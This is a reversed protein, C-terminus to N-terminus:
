SRTLIVISAARRRRSRSTMMLHVLNHLEVFLDESIPLTILRAAVSTVLAVVRVVLLQLKRGHNLRRMISRIAGVAHRTSAGVVLSARARLGVLVALHSAGAHHLAVVMLVHERQRWLGVRSTASGILRAGTQRVLHEGSGAVRDCRLCRCVGLHVLTLGDVFAKHVCASRAVSVAVVRADTAHHVLTLGSLVRSSSSATRRLAVVHALADISVLHESAERVDLQLRRQVLVCLHRTGAATGELADVVEEVRAGGSCLLVRSTLADGSMVELGVVNHRRVRVGVDAASM